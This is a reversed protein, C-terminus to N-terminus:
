FRSLGGFDGSVELERWERWTEEGGRFSKWGIGRWFSRMSGIGRLERCATVGGNGRM